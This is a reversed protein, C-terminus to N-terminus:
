DSPKAKVSEDKLLVLIGKRKGNRSLRFLLTRRASSARRNVPLVNALPIMLTQPSTKRNTRFYIRWTTLHFEFHLGIRGLGDEVIRNRGLDGAQATRSHRGYDLFRQHSARTRQTKQFTYKLNSSNEYCCLSGVFDSIIM